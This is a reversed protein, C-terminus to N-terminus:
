FHEMLLMAVINGHVLRVSLEDRVTSHTHVLTHTIVM